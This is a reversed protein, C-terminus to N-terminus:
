LFPDFTPFSNEVQKEDYKRKNSIPEFFNNNNLSSFNMFEGRKKNKVRFEQKTRVTTSYEDSYAPQKLRWDHNVDPQDHTFSLGLHVNNERPFTFHHHNLYNNEANVSGHGPSNFVIRMEEPKLLPHNHSNEQSPQILRSDTFDFIDEDQKMHGVFHKNSSYFTPIKPQISIRDSTYPEYFHRGPALSKAFKAAKVAMSVTKVDRYPEGSALIFPQSTSEFTHLHHFAQSQMMFNIVLVLGATVLLNLHGM